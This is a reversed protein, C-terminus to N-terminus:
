HSKSPLVSPSNMSTNMSGSGGTAWPSPVPADVIEANGHVSPSVTAWPSPVPADIQPSGSSATEEVGTSRSNTGDLGDDAPVSPDVDASEEETGAQAICAGASFPMVAIALLGALRGFIPSMSRASLAKM